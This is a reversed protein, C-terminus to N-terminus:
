PGRSVHLNRLADLTLGGDALKKALTKKITSHDSDDFLRNKFTLLRDHSKDLYQTNVLANCFNIVQSNTMNETTLALKSQFLIKRLAVVDAFGEHSNEFDSQFLCRYIDRLNEKPVSGDAHRLQENNNKVLHRVLTQSDAFHLDLDQFM